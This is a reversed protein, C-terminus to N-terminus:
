TSIYATCQERLPVMSHHHLSPDPSSSGVPPLSPHELARTLPVMEGPESDVALTYQLVVLAM